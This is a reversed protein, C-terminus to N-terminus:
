VMGAVGPYSALDSEVMGGLKCIFLTDVIKHCFM